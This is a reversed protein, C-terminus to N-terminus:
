ARARGLSLALLVPVAVPMVWWASVGASQLVATAAVTLVVGAATLWDDGVVFDWIGLLVRKM